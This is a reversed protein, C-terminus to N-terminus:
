FTRRVGSCVYIHVTYNAHFCQSTQSCQGVILRAATFSFLTVFRFHLVSVKLTFTAGKSYHQNCNNCGTRWKNAPWDASCWQVSKKEENWFKEFRFNRYLQYVSPLWNSLLLKTNSSFSLFPWLKSIEPSPPSVCGARPITEWVRRLSSLLYPPGCTGFHILQTM